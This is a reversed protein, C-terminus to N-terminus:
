FPTLGVVVKFALGTRIELADRITDEVEEMCEALSEDSSEKREEWNFLGKGDMILVVELTHLSPFRETDQLCQGLRWWSESDQVLALSDYGFNQMPTMQLRLVELGAWTSPKELWSTLYIPGTWCWTKTFVTLTVSRLSTPPPFDPYEENVSMLVILVTLPLNATSSILTIISM